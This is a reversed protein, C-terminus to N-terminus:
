PVAISLTKTPDHWTVGGGLAESLFRTSIYAVGFMMKPPPKCAMKKGEITGESAGLRITSVKRGMTITTTKTLGNWGIQAGFKEAAERLPIMSRGGEVIAYNTLEIEDANLYANYTYITTTLTCDRHLVVGSEAQEGKPNKAFVSITTKGANVKMPASFEGDICATNYSSVTSGDLVIKVSQITKDYIKGQVSVVSNRTHQGSVPSLITITIESPMTFAILFVLISLAVVKLIQKCIILM